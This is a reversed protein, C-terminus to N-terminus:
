YGLILRALEIAAMLIAAVLAAVELCDRARRKQPPSKKAM